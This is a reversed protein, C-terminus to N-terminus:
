AVLNRLGFAKVKFEQFSRTELVSRIVFKPRLYFRRYCERHLDSLEEVNM